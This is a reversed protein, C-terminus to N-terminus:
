NICVPPEVLGLIPEAFWYNSGCDSNVDLLDVEDDQWARVNVVRNFSDGQDIAVGYQQEGSSYIGVTGSFLNNYDSTKAGRSCLSRPGAQSCGIYVGALPNNNVDFNGVSNHSSSEVWVGFRGNGSIVPMQLINYSGAVIRVGDNKNGAAYFNSLDAQMVKNLLVGADTNSIVSFNDAGVDPADIQIGEGFTQITSGNGEIFTGSATKMVHIGVNATAGIVNYRNLNLSVNPATIVLCDGSSPSSAIVVSDLEYLGPKTIKGCATISTPPQALAPAPIAAATMVVFAAAIAYKGRAASQELWRLHGWGIAPM